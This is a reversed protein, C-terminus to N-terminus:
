RRQWWVARRAVVAVLRRCVSRPVMVAVLRRYVSRPVVRVVAAWPLPCVLKPVAM